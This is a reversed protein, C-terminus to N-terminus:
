PQRLDDLTLAAISPRILDAEVLKDAGFSQAVAV